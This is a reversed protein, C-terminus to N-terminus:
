DASRCVTLVVIDDMSHADATMAAIVSDAIDGSAGSTTASLSNALLTLRTDLPVDRREVLGDTFLLLCGTGVDFERPLYHGVDAGLPPGPLVPVESAVGGALHLPSHHGASALRVTGTVTDLVGILVTSLRSGEQRLSYRNLRELTAAPDREELLLLGLTHRLRSMVRAAELDHGEVDGVVLGVLHEGIPVVDYWDGGVEVGTAAPLYRAAIDWGGVAPIEDPLLNRQLEHSIRREREYARARTVVSGVQKALQEALGLDRESFRRGSGASVLTVTGIVQEGRARLPVTMYSTFGLTKVLAFHREDRSTELLFQDTMFSSWMSRGSKMVSNIPHLSHPDPSYTTRLEETLARKEPDAHWAAMRRVRGEEDIIDILCLDAMVPVSVQALREVMQGYDLVESLVQTALLLFENRRRAELLEDVLQEREAAQASAHLLEGLHGGIADMIEVMSPERERRTRSLMKIVGVVAGRYRIPFAFASTLGDAHLGDTVFRDVTALEHVWLPENHEVVWRPIGESGSRPEAKKEGVFRPTLDPARTWVHRCVLEGNPSITWLTTVDWKLRRGLTSLLREAPPDDIPADALIEVLETTLESWQQLRSDDRARFIGVVVIGGLPHEVQSIVLETEVETGDARKIPATLREGALGTTRQQLYGPFDRRLPEALSDAVLDLASRGVLSGAPWGLLEEAAANVYGIVGDADTAVVADALSDLVLRVGRVVPWPRDPQEERSPQPALTATFWVTKGPRGQRVDFGWSEALARVIQLGRGSSADSPADAPAPLREDGDAVEVRVRGNAPERLVCVTFPGATHRVANTVLESLMLLMDDAVPGADPPLQELLFRRARSVSTAEAPFSQSAALAGPPSPHRGLEEHLADHDITTGM